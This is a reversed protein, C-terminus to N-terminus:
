DHPVEVLPQYPHCGPMPQHTGDGCATIHRHCGADPDLECLFDEAPMPDFAERTLTYRCGPDLAAELRDAHPMAAAMEAARLDWWVDNVKGQRRMLTSWVPDERLTRSLVATLRPHDPRTM